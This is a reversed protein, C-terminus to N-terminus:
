GRGKQSLFLGAITLLTGAMLLPTLPEGLVAASVAVTIVPTMYIYLSACVTGLTRVAMNWTTFCLASAVLGLFLLNFMNVPCLLQEMSVDFGFWALFPLMFVIGWGFTARTVQVLSCGWQGMIRTFCAYFSWVVSATVALIDGSPNLSLQVGNFSILCIGVMAMIFGAFFLPTFKEGGHFVFRSVLATFFPTASLIVAVNSAMTFGLAINELLYYLCIGCLGAAAAVAHRRITMGPIRGPGMAYLVAFAMAFRLVLIEM